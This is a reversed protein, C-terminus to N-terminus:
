SRRKTLIIPGPAPGLYFWLAAEIGIYAATMEEIHLWFQENAVKPEQDKELYRRMRKNYSSNPDIIYDKIHPIIPLEGNIWMLTQDFYKNFYDIPSMDMEGLIDDDSDFLENGAM